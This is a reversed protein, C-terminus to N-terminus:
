KDGKVVQGSKMVFTVGEDSGLQDMHTLPDVKMAILDAAKGQAISGLTDARGLAIAANLTASRLVQDAPIGAAVMLAFEEHSRKPGMIGLDTGYVIMVGSRYAKGAGSSAEEFRYNIMKAALLTPTYATGREKMMKIAVDDLPGHEITDAGAAIVMHLYEPSGTVHAAVKRDLKHATNIIAKVESESEVMAIKPNFATAGAQRLKVIDAGRNVEVRVVKTCQDVGTCNGRNSVFRELDARVGM